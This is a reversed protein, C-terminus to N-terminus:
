PAMRSRAAFSGREPRFRTKSFGSTHSHVRRARKNRHEGASRQESSPLRLEVRGVIAPLAPTFRRRLARNVSRLTKEEAKAQMSSAEPSLGLNFRNKLLRYPHHAALQRHATPASEWIQSGEVM